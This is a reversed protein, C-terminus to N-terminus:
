LPRRPKRNDLTPPPQYIVCDTLSHFHGRFWLGQVKDFGRRNIPAQCRPLRQHVAFSCSPWVMRIWPPRADTTECWIALAHARTM